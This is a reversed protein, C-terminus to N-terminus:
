VTAQKERIKRINCCTTRSHIRAPSQAFFGFKVYASMVNTCCAPNGPVKTSRGDWLCFPNGQSIEAICDQFLDDIKKTTAVEGRIHPFIPKRSFSADIIKAFIFSPKDERDVLDTEHVKDGYDDRVIGTTSFSVVRNKPLAPHNWFEMLNATAAPIHHGANLNHKQFMRVNPLDARVRNGRFIRQINLAAGHTRSRSHYNYQGPTRTLRFTSVSSRTSVTSPHVYM